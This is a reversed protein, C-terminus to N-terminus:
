VKEIEYSEPICMVLRTQQKKALDLAEEETLKGTTVYYGTRARNQDDNKLIWNYKVAM